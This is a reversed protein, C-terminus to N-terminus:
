RDGPRGALPSPATPATRIHLAHTDRSLGHPITM